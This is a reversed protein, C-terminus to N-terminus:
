EWFRIPSNRSTRMKRGLERMTSYFADGKAPHRQYTFKLWVENYPHLKVIQFWFKSLSTSEVPQFGLAKM